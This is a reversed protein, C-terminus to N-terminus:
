IDARLSLHWNARPLNKLRDRASWKACRFGDSTESYPSQCENRLAALTLGLDMESPTPPTKDQGQFSTLPAINETYPSMTSPTQNGFCDSTTFSTQTFSSNSAYPSTYKRTPTTSQSHATNLGGDDGYARKEKDKAPTLLSSEVPSKSAYPSHYPKKHLPTVNEQVHQQSISCTNAVSLSMRRDAGGM